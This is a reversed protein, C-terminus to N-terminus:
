VEVEQEDESWPSGGCWACTPDDCGYPENLILHFRRQVDPDASFDPEDKRTPESSPHRMLAKEVPDLRQNPRYACYPRHWLDGAKAEPTCCALRMESWGEAEARLGSLTHPDPRVVDAPLERVMSLDM